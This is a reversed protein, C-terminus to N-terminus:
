LVHGRTYRDLLASERYMADFHTDMFAEANEILEAHSMLTLDDAQVLALGAAFRGHWRPETSDFLVTTTQVPGDTRTKRNPQWRAISVM